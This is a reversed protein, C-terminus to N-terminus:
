AYQSHTVLMSEWCYFFPMTLTPESSKQGQPISILQSSQTMPSCNSLRNSVTNGLPLNLLYNLELSLNGRKPTARNTKQKTKKGKERWVDLVVSPFKQWTPFISRNKNRYNCVSEKQIMTGTNKCLYLQYMIFLSEQIKEWVSSLMKNCLYDLRAQLIFERPSLYNCYYCFAHLYLMDLLLDLISNKM